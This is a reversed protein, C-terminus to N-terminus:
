ESWGWPAATCGAKRARCMPNSLGGTSGRRSPRRRWPSPGRRAGSPWPRSGRAAPNAFSGTSLKRRAGTLSRWRRTCCRRASPRAWPRGNRSCRPAKAYAADLDSRNAQALELLQAGDFPNSVVLTKGSAGARWQGAIPQLHLDRYVANSDSMSFRRMSCCEYVSTDCLLRRICSSAQWRLRGGAGCM